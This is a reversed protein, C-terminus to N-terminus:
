FDFIEGLLRKKKKYRYDNDRSHYKKGYIM